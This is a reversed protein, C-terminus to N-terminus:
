VLLTYINSEIKNSIQVKEINIFRKKNLERLVESLSSRAMGLGKAIDSQNAYYSENPYRLIMYKMYIYVKIENGKLNQIMSRLESLTFEIRRETKAAIYTKMLTYDNPKKDGKFYTKCSMFEKNTLEKLSKLATNRGIGNYKIVENLNWTIKGSAKYEFLFAIFVKLATKDLEPYLDNDFIIPKLNATNDNIKIITDYSKAFNISGYKKQLEETYVGFGKRYEAYYIREYKDLEAYNNIEAWKDMVRKVQEFSWKLTNKFYPILFMIVADTYGEPADILMYKIPKQLSTLYCGPVINYYSEKFKSEEYYATFKYEDKSIKTNLNFDIDEVQYRVKKDTLSKLQDWLQQPAITETTDRVTYVKFQGKRDTFNSSFCKNNVSGNLRIVQGRNILKKDIKFGKNILLKTFKSLAFEDNLQESLFIRKQYGNKSTHVSQFPIELRDMTEDFYQNEEDTVNDLDAVLVRTYLQNHKNIAYKKYLKGDTKKVEITSDFAYVSIYLCVGENEIYKEYWRTFREKAKSDAKWLHFGKTARDCVGRKNQKRKLARVEVCHEGPTGDVLETHLRCIDNWMLEIDEKLDTSSFLNEAEDIISEGFSFDEITMQNKLQM